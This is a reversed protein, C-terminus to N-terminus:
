ENEHCDACTRYVATHITRAPDRRSGARPPVPARSTRLRVPPPEAPQVVPVVLSALVDVASLPWPPGTHVFPQSAATALKTSGLLRFLRRPTYVSLDILAAADPRQEIAVLHEHVLRAMRGVDMPGRLLWPKGSQSSRCVVHRSFKGSGTSGVPRTADLVLVDVEVQEAAADCRAAVDRLVAVAATCVARCAANALWYEASSRLPLDLDFYLYCGRETDIVEYAHKCAVRMYAAAFQAPTAILYLKPASGGTGMSLDAAWLRALRNKWLPDAM